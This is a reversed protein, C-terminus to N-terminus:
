VNNSAAEPKIELYAFYGNKSQIVTWGAKKHMNFSAINSARIHAVIRTFGQQRFHPIIHAYLGLGLGMSRVQPDTGIFIVRVIGKASEELIPTQSTNGATQQSRTIEDGPSPNQVSAKYPKLTKKIWDALVILGVLPHRLVFMHRFYNWDWASITYGVLNNDLSAVFIAVNRARLADDM